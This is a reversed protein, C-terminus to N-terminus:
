WWLTSFTSSKPNAGPSMKGKSVQVKHDSIDESCEVNERRDILIPMRM